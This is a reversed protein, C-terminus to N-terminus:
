QRNYSLVRISTLQRIWRAHKKDKSAIIRFPGDTETLKEGDMQFAILIPDNTFDPDTETLSFMVQYGDRAEVIVYKTLNEGRLNSGSPAGASRLVGSLPVGKFLHKNGDKDKVTIEVPPLKSVESLSIIRQPGEDIQVIFSETTVQAWAELCCGLLLLTFLLVPSRV